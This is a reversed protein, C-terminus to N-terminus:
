HAEAKVNGKEKSRLEKLIKRYYDRRQLGNDIALVTCGGTPLPRWANQRRIRGDSQRVTVYYNGNWGM